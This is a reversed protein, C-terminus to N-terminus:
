IPSRILSVPQETCAILDILLNLPPPIFFVWKIISVNVALNRLLNCDRKTLVDGVFFAHHLSPFQTTAGGVLVQGM